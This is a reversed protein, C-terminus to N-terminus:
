PDAFFAKTCTLKKVNIRKKRKREKITNESM